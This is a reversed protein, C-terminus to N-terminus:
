RCPVEGRRARNALDHARRLPEPIRYRPCCRLALEASSAPDARQGPSVYVPSVGCRTRLVIGVTEGGFVLPTRGGKEAPPEDHEGCLRSKACGVTPVDLVVGLHSASGFGRPHAIGHADVLLVDPPRSLKGFAKRLVPVERFGLLGPIYPFDVKEYAVAQDLTALGGDLDCVVVAGFFDKGWMTFSVDAGGVASIKGPLPLIRLAERLREQERIARSYKPDAYRPRPPVTM